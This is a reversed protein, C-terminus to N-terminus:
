RPREYRYYWLYLTRQRSACSTLLRSTTRLALWIRHKNPTSRYGHSSDVYFLGGRLSQSNGVDQSTEVLLPSVFVLSFCWSGTENNENVAQLFDSGRGQLVTKKVFLGALVM